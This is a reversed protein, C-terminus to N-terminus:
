VFTLAPARNESGLNVSVGNELGQTMVSVAFQLVYSTIRASVTAGSISCDVKL